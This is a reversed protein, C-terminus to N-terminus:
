IKRCIINVAQMDNIRFLATVRNAKQERPHLSEGMKVFIFVRYLLVAARISYM